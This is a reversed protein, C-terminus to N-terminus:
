RTWGQVASIWAVLLSAVGGGVAGGIWSQWKTRRAFKMDEVRIRADETVLAARGREWWRIPTGYKEMLWKISEKYGTEDDLSLNRDGYIIARSKKWRQRNDISVYMSTGQFSFDVFLAKPRAARVLTDANFGELGAHEIVRSYAEFPVRKQLEEVFHKLDEKNRFRVAHPVGESM